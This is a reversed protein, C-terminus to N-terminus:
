VNEGMNSCHGGEECIGYLNVTLNEMVWNMVNVILDREGDIEINDNDLNIESDTQEYIKDGVFKIDGFGKIDDTMM